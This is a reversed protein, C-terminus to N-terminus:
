VDVVAVTLQAGPSVSPPFGDVQVSHNALPATLNAQLTFTYTGPPLAPTSTAGAESGAFTVTTDETDKTTDGTADVFTPPGPPVPTAIVATFVEGTHGGGLGHYFVRAFVLVKQGAAVTVPATTCLPTITPALAIKITAGGNDAHTTSLLGHAALGPNVQVTWDDADSEFTVQASAFPTAIAFTPGGRITTGSPPLIVLQNASSASGDADVVVYQDGDNPAEDSPREITTPAQVKRVRVGTDRRSLAFTSVDNASQYIAIQNLSNAPM